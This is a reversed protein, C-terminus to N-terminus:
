STYKMLRSCHTSGWEQCTRYISGKLFRALGVENTTPLVKGSSPLETQAGLQGTNHLKMQKQEFCAKGSEVIAKEQDSIENTDSRTAAIGAHGSAMVYM